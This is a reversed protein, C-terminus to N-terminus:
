GVGGLVHSGRQLALPALAVLLATVLIALWAARDVVTIASEVERTTPLSGSGVRYAGPKEVTVGLVAALTAMPWGANPSAPRRATSRARWVAGPDVAALAIALAALRAPVFAVVDDTRASAWGLPRDPYGITADLADIATVAATGAAAAAPSHVSGLLFGALPAVLGDALNEAVSEAIASRRRAPDLDDTSRGVLAALDGSRDLCERAVALLRRRSMSLWLVVGAVAVGLPAAITEAVATVGGALGAALAVIVAVVGVGAFRPAPWDRDLTEIARGLWAVPHLRDPPEGFLTDLAVALVVATAAM